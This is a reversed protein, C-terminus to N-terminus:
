ADHNQNADADEKLHDRIMINLYNNLTRDQKDAKENLEAKVSAPVAIHLIKCDKPLHMWDDDKNKNERNKLPQGDELMKKIWFLEKEKAQSDKVEELVVICDVEPNYSRHQYERNKVNKTCGVYVMQGAKDKVAYVSKM